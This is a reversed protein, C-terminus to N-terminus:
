LSPTSQPPVPSLAPPIFIPGCDFPPKTAHRQDKPCLGIPSLSFTVPVTIWGAIPKGNEEGANFKWGEGATVATAQLEASDATTRAHDVEVKTVKGQTNVHIRLMVMGQEGNRLADAPYRPPNRNKYTIDVSPATTGSSSTTNVDGLSFTIPVRVVGGIPRGDKAGPRFKWSQAADVAAAQLDAAATTNVQDVDVKIVKGTADVHVNLVVRGQEGKRIAEVPYRPPHRNKYTVDVLPPISSSMAQTAAQVPTQGGAILLGGVLLAAIALFGARRRLAGPQIRTIMAIREKLQPESLWPILAPVPQVAGSDLLARAYGARRSPLARLSAADCALEQDLRFRPRALWALPHFWLLASVIEMTLCWWTDGRRAHTLEHRLVLERAAATDFRRLFDEPLLILSHPLAWLVAPGDVHVRMRGAGLGPVAECVTALWAPSGRRVSSSLRVYHWALRALCLVVGVVWLALLVLSVGNGSSAYATAAVSAHPTVTLGPLVVMAAPVLRQPLLPALALVFPLLWLTFAPGAGFMRRAPRRLLLILVLGITSDLLVKLLVETM